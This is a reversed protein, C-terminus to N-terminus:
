RWDAGSNGPLCGRWHRSAACPGPRVRGSDFPGMDAARKKDLDAEHLEFEILGSIHARVYQQLSSKKDPDTAAILALEQLQRSELTQSFNHIVGGLLSMTQKARKLTADNEQQSAGGALLLAALVLLLVIGSVMLVSPKLRELHLIKLNTLGSLDTKGSTKSKPSKM